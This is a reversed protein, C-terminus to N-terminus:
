HSLNQIPCRQFVGYGTLFIFVTVGTWGLFSLVEYIENQGNAVVGFFHEVNSKVFSMENEQSFGLKPNHLFNHMMIAVIELGRLILSNEKTLINNGTM